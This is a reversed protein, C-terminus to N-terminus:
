KNLDKYSTILYAGQKILDSNGEEDNGFDSFCYIDKGLNLFQNVLNMLGSNKYSSYLVLQDSLAAIIRNRAHIRKKNVNTNNPFESIKLTDNSMKLKSAKTVNNLGDMAIFITPIKHKISIKYVEEDVGKRMTTLCVKNQLIEYSNDKIKKFLTENTADGTLLTLNGKLLEKNGEYFIVFPPKYAKKLREPYDLDLITIAKFEENSIKKELAKLDNLSVREKVELAKYIENWDGKYKIAFYILIINM